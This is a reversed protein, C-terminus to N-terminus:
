RGVQKNWEEVWKAQRSPIDAAPPLIIKSFPTIQDVVSPDHKAKTNGIGYGIASGFCSQVEPSLTSNIFQWALDPSNKVKQLLVPAAVNGPELLAFAFDPHGDKIFNWARGDWYTAIDIDGGNLANLVQNPDVWFTMNGSKVLKKLTDFAPQVNDINGGYITALQIVSVTMGASTYNINPMSAKWKGALTGEYFEKWTKPPDKVADKNYLIGMAGYNHIVGHGEGAQVFSPVMDALNPVKEVTMPDVLGRTIADHGTDTPNFLVDLPPKAPSAAIQNLWQIPSGLTVEVTKGTAKEFPAIACKRLSQEWIGGFAGVTLDAAKAAGLSGCLAAAAVILGTGMNLRLRRMTLEETGPPEGMSAKMM